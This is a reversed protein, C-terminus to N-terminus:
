NIFFSGTFVVTNRTETVNGGIDGPEMYCLNNTTFVLFISKYNVFEDDDDNEDWIM